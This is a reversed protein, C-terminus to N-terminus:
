SICLASEKSFVRINPFVSPLLLPCCLILHISPIVLGTSMLKILSQSITFSLSAQCAATWPTALLWVLSLLQVVVFSHLGPIKNSLQFFHHVKEQSCSCPIVYGWSKQYRDYSWSPHRGLVCIMYHFGSLPFSILGQYQCAEDVAQVVEPRKLHTLSNGETNLDTFSPKRNCEVLLSRILLVLVIVWGGRTFFVCM